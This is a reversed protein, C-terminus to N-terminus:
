ADKVTDRAQEAQGRVDDAADVGEDKVTQAADVATDKLSQAADQAPQSLNQAVDKATDTAESLLPQAQDKINQAVEQEKDSAPILASVLLGTGFAILGAALPNGRTRSKLATPASSATDAASSLADQSADSADHASGMVRDRLGAASSAVRSVKRKAMTTPNAEYALSNVDSSLARRTREIEARIQDPDSDSDFTTM